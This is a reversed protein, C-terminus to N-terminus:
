LFESFFTAVVTALSGGVRTGNQGVKSSLTLSLKHVKGKEYDQIQYFWPQIFGLRKLIICDKKKDGLIM